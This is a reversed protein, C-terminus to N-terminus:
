LLAEITYNPCLSIFVFDCDPHDTCHINNFDSAFCLIM